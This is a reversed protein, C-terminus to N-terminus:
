VGQRAWPNRALRYAARAPGYTPGMLAPLMARLRERYEGRYKNPALMLARVVYMRRRWGGEEGLVYAANYYASSFAERRVDGLERPLGTCAYFKRVLAVHEKARDTDAHRVTASDGHVRFTALERPIRALDGVLAARLWFDFDAVFRFATDRGGIRRAVEARVFSGPGPICYQWRVMDVLRFDFTRMERIPRSGEDIMQWDPYVGVLREDAQLREVAASVAGPLLPDDSNVVGIISGRARELGRNVTRTEGVNEHRVYRIRDGYCEVLESTGDTSGDDVVIYELRPYSQGLVSEITEGLLRERNYTPTIVTVLPMEKM